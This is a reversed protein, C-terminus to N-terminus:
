SRHPISGGGQLSRHKLLGSQRLYGLYKAPSIEQRYLTLYNGALHLALPLDGLEHAISNLSAEEEKTFPRKKQTM